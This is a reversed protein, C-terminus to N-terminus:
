LFLVTNEMAYAWMQAKIMVAENELPKNVYTSERYINCEFVFVCM